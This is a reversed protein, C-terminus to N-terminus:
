CIFSLVLSFFIFTESIMNVIIKLFTLNNTLLAVSNTYRITLRNKVLM